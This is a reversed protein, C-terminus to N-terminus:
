VALYIKLCEIGAYCFPWPSWYPIAIFTSKTQCDYILTCIKSYSGGNDNFGYDFLKSIQKGVDWGGHLM